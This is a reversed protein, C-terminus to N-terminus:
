NVCGADLSTNVTSRHRAPWGYLAQLTVVCPSYCIGSQGGWNPTELCAFFRGVFEEQTRQTGVTGAIAEPGYKDRIEKVKDAIENLAQEWSIRQWKGEGKEGARKLPFNVHDPHYMWEKTGLMRVCAKIPPWIQDVTPDSRDPELKVLHGKQDSYVLLRCRAHCFECITKSVKQEAM